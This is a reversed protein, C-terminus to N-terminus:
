HQKKEKWEELRRVFEIIDGKAECGFCYFVNKQDDLSLSPEKDDHFPCIINNKEINLGYYKAVESIKLNSDILHRIRGRVKINNKNIIKKEEEEIIFIKEEFLDLKQNKIDEIYLLMLDILASHFEAFNINDEEEKKDKYYYDM